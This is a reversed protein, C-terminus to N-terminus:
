AKVGEKRPGVRKRVQRTQPPFGALAYGLLHVADAENDDEMARGERRQAAQTMATKDANGSGTAWKKLTQSHVGRYECGTAACVEKVRTAFGIAIETAAAGRHHPEEFVIIAPDHLDVMWELWRRFDLFRMGPSDNRRLEFHRVGSLTEGEANTAWGTHTSLDLALVRLPASCRCAPHPCDWCRGSM